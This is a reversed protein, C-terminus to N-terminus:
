RSVVIPIFKRCRVTGRALTLGRLAGRPLAIDSGAMVSLSAAGADARTMRRTVERIVAYEADFNRDTM